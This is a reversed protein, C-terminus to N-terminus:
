GKSASALASDITKRFDDWPVAGVVKTGNIIFTPTGTINYTEEGERARVQIDRLLTRDQLCADVKDKSLGALRSVKMLEQFPDAGTAWTAQSKFLVDLLGFYRSDDACHPFVAAVLALEGLPFDRFVLRVQGPDIYTEKLKPLTSAHFEACHSCTMSSYELITVPADDRGLVRDRPYSKVAPQPAARATGRAGVVVGGVGAAAAVAAAGFLFSRRRLALDEQYDLRAYSLVAAV